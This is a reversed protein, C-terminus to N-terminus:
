ILMGAATLAGTVIAGGFAVYAVYALNNLIFKGIQQGLAMVIGVVFAALVAIVGANNMVHNQLFDTTPTVLETGTVACAETSYLVLPMVVAAVSVLIKTQNPTM